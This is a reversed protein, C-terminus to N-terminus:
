NNLILSFPPLVVNDKLYQLAKDLQIRLKATGMSSKLVVPAGTQKLATEIEDVTADPCAQRLLAFAGTVHPAAMSTGTKSGFSDVSTALASNINVGPAMLDVMGPGWNGDTYEDDNLDTGDVSVAAAICAPSSVGATFSENGSSIVPAIGANRLSMIIARRPDNLCETTNEEYGGLSLNAAAINHSNRLSYIYELGKIQDSEWSGTDYWAYVLFYVQIAIISAEPAVGSAAVGDPPSGAATGAVHTGHSDARSGIMAPAATGPGYEETTGGPCMSEGQGKPDSFCAETTVRSSAGGFAVHNSLIGTDLIAVNVGKGTYGAGWVTDAGILQLYQDSTSIERSQSETPPPLRHLRDIQVKAIWDLQLLTMLGAEDVEALVMPLHFYTHLIRCGSPPLLQGLKNSQTQIAERLQQDTSKARATSRSSVSAKRLTGYNEIDMEVLVRILGNEDLNQRLNSIQKAKSQEECLGTAEVPLETALIFFLASLIVFCFKIRKLKPGSM